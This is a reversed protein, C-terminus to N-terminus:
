GREHYHNNYVTYRKKKQGAFNEKKKPGEFVAQNFQLSWLIDCEQRLSFSNDYTKGNNHVATWQEWENVLGNRTTRNINYSKLALEMEEPMRGKYVTRTTM